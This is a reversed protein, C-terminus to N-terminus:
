VRAATPRRRMMLRRAPEEILHYIGMALLVMPVVCAALFGVRVVVHADVYRAPPAVYQVAWLWLRQVMYLAFSIKGGYIFLPTAFWAALRGRGYALSLILPPILPVTWYERGGLHHITAAGVVLAILWVGPEASWRADRGWGITFLRYIVCGAGFEAVIQVLYRGAFEVDLAATLQQQAGPVAGLALVVVAAAASGGRTVLRGAVGALLPFTLYAFWETSISWAPANWAAADGYWANVLLASTILSTDSFRAGDMSGPLTLHLGKIAIVLPVLMALHVPYIRALRAWLFRRYSAATAVEFSAAYNYSIIFGSLVFFVDVGLFGPLGLFMLADGTAGPFLVAEFATLHLAVVWLAAFARVGTLAPLFEPRARPTSGM